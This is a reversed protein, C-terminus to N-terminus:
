YVVLAMSHVSILTRSHRQTSVLAVSHDASAGTSGAGRTFGVATKEEGAIAARSDNGIRVALRGAAEDRPASTGIM